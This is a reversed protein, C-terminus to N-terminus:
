LQDGFPFVYELVLQNINVVNDKLQLELFADDEYAVSAMIQQVGRDFTM